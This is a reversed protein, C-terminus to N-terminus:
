PTELQRIATRTSLERKGVVQSSITSAGGLRVCSRACLAGIDFSDPLGLLFFKKDSDHQLEEDSSPADPLLTKKNKKRVPQPPDRPYLCDMVSLSVVVERVLSM